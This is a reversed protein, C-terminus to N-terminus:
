EVEMYTLDYSIKYVDFIKNMSLHYDMFCDTDNITVEVGEDKQIFMVQRSDDKSVFCAKKIKAIGEMKIGGLNHIPREVMKLIAFKKELTM